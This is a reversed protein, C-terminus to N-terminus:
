PTRNERRLWEAHGQLYTSFRDHVIREAVAAQQQNQSFGVAGDPEIESIWYREGDYLFDLTFYRTRLKSAAFEVAPELDPLADVYERHHRGGVVRTATFCYGDKEGRLITHPAGDIVYVRGEQVQGLYPQIVLATESGGALGIVGRLDHINRVVSVGLGMGWYAPKVILPYDMGALAIDYHGSMALRGTGIRVTPLLPVPCEALFLMTALKDRGISAIRPHIPLYFGAQELNTHLMVQNCVDMAQHPLSYLHTIFITDEPTVRDGSLFFRPERPDRADIAIEEPGHLSLELDLKAAVDRYQGWFDEHGARKPSAVRDPYIWCLQRAPSTGQDVDTESV